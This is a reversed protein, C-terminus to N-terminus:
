LADKKNTYIVSFSERPKHPSDEYRMYAEQFCFGHKTPITTQKIYLEAGPELGDTTKEYIQAANMDAHSLEYLKDLMNRNESDCDSLLQCGFSGDPAKLVVLGMVFYPNDVNLAHETMIRLNQQLLEDPTIPRHEFGGHESDTM